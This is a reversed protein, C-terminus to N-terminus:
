ATPPLILTHRRSKLKAFEDIVEDENIEGVLEREISLVALENLRDQGM